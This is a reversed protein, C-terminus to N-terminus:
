PWYFGRIVKENINLSSIFYQALLKMILILANERQDSKCIKPAITNWVNVNLIYKFVSTRPICPDSAIMAISLYKGRVRKCFILSLLIALSDDITEDQKLILRLITASQLFPLGVILQTTEKPIVRDKPTPHLIQM